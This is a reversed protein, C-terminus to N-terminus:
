PGAGSDDLEMVANATPDSRLSMIQRHLQSDRVGYRGSPQRQIADAYQGYGLAPGQEKLTTLWTQEVFQFLGRATSTRAAAKPNLNSEVQATALLYEFSTGTLRSAQRIAGAVTPTGGPADVLM